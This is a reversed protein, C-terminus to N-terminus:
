AQMLSSQKEIEAIMEATEGEWDMGEETQGEWDVKLPSLEQIIGKQQVQDSMPDFPRALWRWREVRGEVESPDGTQHNCEKVNWQSFKM